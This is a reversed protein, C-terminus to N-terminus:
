RCLQVVFFLCVFAVVVIFIFIFLFKNLAIRCVFLYLFKHLAFPILYVHCIICHILNDDDALFSCASYFTKQSCYDCIITRNSWTLTKYKAFLGCSPTFM